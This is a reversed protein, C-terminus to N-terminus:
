VGLLNVVKWGDEVVRVVVVHVVVHALSFFSLFFFFAATVLFASFRNEKDTEQGDTHRHTHPPEEVKKEREREEKKKSSNHNEFDKEMEPKTKKATEFEGQLSSFSALSSPMIIMFFSLLFIFFSNIGRFPTSCVCVAALDLWPM